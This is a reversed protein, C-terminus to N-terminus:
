LDVFNLMPLLKCHWAVFHNQLQFFIVHYFVFGRGVEVDLLVIHLTLEGFIAVLDPLKIALIISLFDVGEIVQVIRPELGDVFRGFVQSIDFFYRAQVEVTVFLSSIKEGFLILGREVIWILFDSHPSELMSSQGPLSHSFALNHVGFQM